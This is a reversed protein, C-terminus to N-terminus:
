QLPNGRPRCRAVSDRRDAASATSAFSCRELRGATVDRRHTVRTRLGLRAMHRSLRRPVGSRREPGSAREGDRGGAAARHAALRWPAPACCGAVRRRAEGFPRWAPHSTATGSDEGGHRSVLPVWRRFARSPAATCDRCHIRARFQGPRQTLIRDTDPHFPYGFAPRTFRLAPHLSHGAASPHLSVAQNAGHQGPFYTEGRTWHLSAVAAAVLDGRRAVRVVDCNFEPPSRKPVDSM